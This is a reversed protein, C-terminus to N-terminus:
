WGYYKGLAGTLVDPAAQVAVNWAGSTAKVLMRGLWSSVKSGLENKAATPELAIADGLVGLDDDAVGHKRLYALLSEPDGPLIEALGQSVTEGVAVVNDSGYINTYFINRAQSRDFTGDQLQEDTVAVNLVFDLLRTKVSDLVESFVSTPIPQHAEVLQMGEIAIHERALAVYEAPWPIRTSEQSLMAELHKVSQQLVLNEAFSKLPEPLNITPLLQNRVQSNFPGWFTGLNNARFRRYKPTTDPDDYGSLEHDAWERLDSLGLRHALIKAKRLTDSLSASETVLDDRIDDILKM